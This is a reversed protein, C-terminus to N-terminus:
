GSTRRTLFKSKGLYIGSVQVSKSVRPLLTWGRDIDSDEIKQKRESMFFRVNKRM